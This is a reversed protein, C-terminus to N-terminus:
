YGLKVAAFASKHANRPAPSEPHGRKVSRSGLLSPSREATILNKLKAGGLQKSLRRLTEEARRKRRYLAILQNELLQMRKITMYAGLVEQGRNGPLSRVRSGLHTRLDQLGRVQHKARKAM